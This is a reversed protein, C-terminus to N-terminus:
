AARRIKERAAATRTRLRRPHAREREAFEDTQRAQAHVNGGLTIRWFRLSLFPSNRTFTNDPFVHWWRYGGTRYYDEVARAKEAGVERAAALCAVRGCWSFQYTGAVREPSRGASLHRVAHRFDVKRGWADLVLIAAGIAGPIALWVFGVLVAAATVAIDLVLLLLPPWMAGLPVRM